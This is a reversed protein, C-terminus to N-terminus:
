ATAFEKGTHALPWHLATQLLPKMAQPLAQTSVCFSPALQPPQLWCHATPETHVPPAQEDLQPPVTHPLKQTSVLLSMALQPPQLMTHGLPRFAEGMQLAPCHRSCHLVPKEAQSLAQTSSPVSEKLQPAQLLAHGAPAVQWAPVQTVVQLPVTHAPWHTSVELSGLLQPPQPVNQAVEAALETGAQTLPAQTESQLAPNVAQSLLQTSSDNSELLQPAQLVTQGEPVSHEPPTHTLPQGAKV